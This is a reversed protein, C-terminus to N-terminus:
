AAEKVEFGQALLSELTVTSHLTVTAPGGVINFLPRPPLTAFGEQLGVYRVLVVPKGPASPSNSVPKVANNHAFFSLHSKM